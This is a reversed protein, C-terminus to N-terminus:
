RALVETVKEAAEKSLVLYEHNLIDYVNIALARVAKVRPNNRAALVLNGDEDNHVILVKADIKLKDTLVSQLEKTKAVKLKLDDVLVLRDDKVKQSLASRLAGRRIEKPLDYSYDRPHPGQVTGGKRWLPSRNDGVRARGTHKQKWPKKGGGSVEMRNKTDHTGRRWGAMYNKVADHMLHKKVPAAFVEDSLSMTGVKKGSANKIDMEPM